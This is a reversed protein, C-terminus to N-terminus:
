YQKKILKILWSGLPFWMMNIINSGNHVAWELARCQPSAIYFPSLLFDRITWPTCYTAYMHTSFYHCTIWFIYFLIVNKIM